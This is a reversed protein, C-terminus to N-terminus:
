KAQVVEGRQQPRRKDVLDWVHKEIDSLVTKVQDKTMVSGADMTIKWRMQEILELMGSASVQVDPFITRHINNKIEDSLEKNRQRLKTIEREMNNYKEESIRM